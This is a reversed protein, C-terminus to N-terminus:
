WNITNWKAIKQYVSDSYNFLYAICVHKNVVPWRSFLHFIENENNHCNVIKKEDEEDNNNNNTTEDCMKIKNDYTEM